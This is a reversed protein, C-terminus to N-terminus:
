ALPEDEVDGETDDEASADLEEQAAELDAKAAQLESKPSSATVSLVTDIASQVYAAAEPDAATAAEEQLEVAEELVGVVLVYNEVRLAQVSARAARTDTATALAALAARDTDINARVASELDDPLAATRASAAVKALFADKVAVDKALQKAQPNQPAPKPPKGPKSTKAPKGPKAPKGHSAKPAAQASEALAVPAAVVVASLAAAVLRRATHSM